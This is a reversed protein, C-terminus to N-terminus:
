KQFITDRHFELFEQSPIFKEPLTIQQTTFKLLFNDLSESPLYSAIKNSILISYNGDISILGNDFARDHISCLCLGNRPNLRHEVSQRWPIIHSAILLEPIPLNCVACASNYINLITKQFFRQGRRAKITQERTTEEPFISTTIELEVSNQPEIIDLLAESEITSDNWNSTFEAWIERDAKSANPLGVIGRKKHSNDLSAFNSLKMAVASPTRNILHALQQIEPTGSHYKSFPLKCYLNLALLLENRTWLRRSM